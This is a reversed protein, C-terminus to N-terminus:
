GTVRFTLWFPKSPGSHMARNSGSCPSRPSNQTQLARTPHRQLSHDGGKQKPRPLGPVIPRGTKKKKGPQPCSAFDCLGPASLWQPRLGCHPIDLAANKCHFLQSSACQLVRFSPFTFHSAIPSRSDCGKPLPLHPAAPPTETVWRPAALLSMRSLPLWARGRSHTRVPWIHQWHGTKGNGSLQWNLRWETGCKVM